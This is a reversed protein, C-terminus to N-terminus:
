TRNLSGASITIEGPMDTLRNTGTLAILVLFEGPRAGGSFYGLPKGFAYITTQGRINVLNPAKM